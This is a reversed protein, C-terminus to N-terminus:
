ALALELLQDVDDLALRELLRFPRDGPLGAQRMDVDPQDVGRDGAGRDVAVRQGVRDAELAPVDLDPDEVRERRQDVQAGQLAHRRLEVELQELDDGLGIGDRAHEAAVVDALGPRQEDVDAPPRRVDGEDALAADLPGPHEREATPREGLAEGVPQVQRERAGLGELDVVRPADRDVLRGVHGPDDASSTRTQAAPTSSTM